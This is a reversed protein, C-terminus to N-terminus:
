DPCSVSALAFNPSKGLFGTNSYMLLELLVKLNHYQIRRNVHIVEQPVEVGFVYSSILPLARKILKTSVSELNMSESFKYNPTFNYTTEEVEEFEDDSESPAGREKYVSMVDVNRSGLDEVRYHAIKQRKRITNEEQLKRSRSSKPAQGTSAFALVGFLAVSLFALFRM